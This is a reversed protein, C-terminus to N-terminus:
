NVRTITVLCTSNEARVNLKVSFPNDNIFKLDVSGFSVTADMGEPLYSVGDGGHKKRATVKFNDQNLVSAYITSSVQCVGGGYDQILEGNQYAGGLQYGMAKSRPGTTKNYSFTKGPPIITGDLFSSVLFINHKRGAESGYYTTRYAALIEYDKGVNQIESFKDIAIKYINQAVPFFAYGDIIDIIPLEDRFFLQSAVTVGDGPTKEALTGLYQIPLNIINSKKMDKVSYVSPLIEPEIVYDFTVDAEKVFGGSSLELFGNEKKVFIEESDQHVIGWQEKTKKSEAYIPSDRLIKGRRYIDLSEFVYERKIYGDKVRYWDGLDELIAITSQSPYQSIWKSEIDMEERVNLPSDNYGYKLIEESNDVVAISVQSINKDTTTVTEASAGQAGVFFLIILFLVGMLRWYRLLFSSFNGKVSTEQTETINYKRM